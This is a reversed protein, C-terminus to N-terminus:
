YRLQGDSGVIALEVYNSGNHSQPTYRATFKEYRVEGLSEMGKIFSETTLRPGAARLGHVLLKAHVFGEFQASSPQAQADKSRLLGLYESVIPTTTNRISPMIQALVIGRAQPGLEKNLDEVNVPSFGYFTPRLSTALVAKVLSSFAEGSAGMIIAQPGAKQLQEAAAKFDPTKEDAMVEVVLPMKLAAAARKVEALLTKGYKDGQGFLAVKVTGLQHLQQVIRLAEDAYSARVHFLYRNSIERLSSAGTYPGFVITNSETALPLLAITQATGTPRFLAFVKDDQILKTNNELSKPVDYKDDIYSYVIKRGNIGGSANVADFYLQAGAVNAMLRSMVPISAGIRIETDTVGADVAQAGTAALCLATACLSSFLFFPKYIAPL